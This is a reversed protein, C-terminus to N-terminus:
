DPVLGEAVTLEALLVCGGAAGRITNDVLATFSMRKGDVDLDSVCVSMGARLDTAPDVSGSAGDLGGGLGGTGSAQNM